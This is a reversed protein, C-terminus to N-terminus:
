VTFDVSVQSLSQVPFLEAERCLDGKLKRAAFAEDDPIHNHQARVELILLTPTSEDLVVM